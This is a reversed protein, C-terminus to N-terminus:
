PEQQGSINLPPLRGQPSLPPGDLLAPEPERPEVELEAELPKPPEAALDHPEGEGDVASGPRMQSVRTSSRVLARVAKWNKKKEPNKCSLHTLLAIALVKVPEFIWTVCV